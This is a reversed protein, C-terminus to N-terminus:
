SGRELAPTVQNEVGDMVSSSSNGLALFGAVAAVAILAGLFAYEIATAGSQHLFFRSIM